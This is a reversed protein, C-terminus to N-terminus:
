TFKSEGERGDTHRSRKIDGEPTYIWTRWGLWGMEGDVDHDVILKGYVVDEIFNREDNPFYRDLLSRYFAVSALHPRQSWQVTRVMPVGRVNQPESDLMLYRHPELISAEHSFRVLNADGHLITQSIGGWDIEGTLPTDAEMFLMLPTEVHALARKTCVAQHLHQDFILPLIHGYDHDAKWLIARLYEEYDARRDQQEARVGDHVLVIEADPLQERVSDITEVVIRTDPHSKIPSCTM